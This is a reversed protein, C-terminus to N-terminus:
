RLHDTRGLEHRAQEIPRAESQEFARLKTHHVDVERGSVKDYAVALAAFITDGEKGGVHPLRKPLVQAINLRKM